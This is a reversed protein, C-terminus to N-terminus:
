KKRNAIRFIGYGILFVGGAIKAYAPILTKSESISYAALLIVLGGLIFGKEGISRM